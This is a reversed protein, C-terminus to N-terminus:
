RKGNLSFRAWSGPTLRIRTQNKVKVRVKLYKEEGLWALRHSLRGM